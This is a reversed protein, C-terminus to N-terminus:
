LSKLRNKSIHGFSSLRGHNKQTHMKWLLSIKKIEVAEKHSATKQIAKLHASIRKQKAKTVMPSLIYHEEREVLLQTFHTFNADFYHEQYLFVVNESIKLSLRPQNANGAAM